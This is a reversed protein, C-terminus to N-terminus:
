NISPGRVKYQPRQFSEFNSENTMSEEEMKQPAELKVMKEEPEPSAVKGPKKKRKKKKEGKKKEGENKGTEKTKAAFLGRIRLDKFAFRYVCNM